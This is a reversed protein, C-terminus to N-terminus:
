ELIRAADCLQGAINANFYEHRSKRSLWLLFSVGRGLRAEWHIENITEDPTGGVSQVLRLGLKALTAVPIAAAALEGQKGADRVAQVIRSPDPSDRMEFLSLGTEGPRLSFESPKTTGRRLRVIRILEASLM